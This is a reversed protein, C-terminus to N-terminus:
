RGSAAAFCHITGRDTSAFLRGNAVALGHVKGTVSASWRERGTKADFAAVRHDGGAFLTEGAMILEHPYDATTRWLFCATM